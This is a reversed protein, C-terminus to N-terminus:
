KHLITRDHEFIDARRPQGHARKRFLKKIKIQLGRPGGRGRADASILQFAEANLKELTDVAVIKGYQAQREQLCQFKQPLSSTEGLSHSPSRVLSHPVVM